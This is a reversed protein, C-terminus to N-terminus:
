RCIHGKDKEQLAPNEHFSHASIMDLIAERNYKKMIITWSGSKLYAM